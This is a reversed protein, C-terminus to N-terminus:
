ELFLFIKYMAPHFRDDGLFVTCFVDSARLQSSAEDWGSIPVVKQKGMLLSTDSFSTLTSGGLIADWKWTLLAAEWGSSPSLDPFLFINLADGVGYPDKTYFTLAMVMLTVAHPIRPPLFRLSNATRWCAAEMVSRAQYKKLPYFTRYVDLM